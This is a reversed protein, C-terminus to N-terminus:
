LRQAIGFIGLEACYEARFMDANEGSIAPFVRIRRDDDTGGFYQAILEVIGHVPAFGQGGIEHDQVFGMEESIFIASHDPFLDHDIQRGSNRQQQQRCGNSVGPLNRGPECRDSGPGARDDFFGYPRDLQERKEEMRGSGQQRQGFRFFGAGAQFQIFFDAFEDLCFPGAADAVATLRRSKVTNQAYQSFVIQQRCDKKEFRPGVAVPGQIGAAVILYRVGSAFLAQSFSHIVENLSHRVEGAMALAPLQLVQRDSGVVAALHRRPLQDQFLQHGFTKEVSNKCGGRHGRPDVERGSCNGKQVRVAEVAFMKQGEGGGLEVLHGAPGASLIPKARSIGSLNM